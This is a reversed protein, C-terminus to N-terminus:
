SLSTRPEHSRSRQVPLSALGVPRKIAPHETLFLAICTPSDEVVTVPEIWALDRSWTFRLEIRDGPMWVLTRRSGPM